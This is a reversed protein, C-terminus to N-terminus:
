SIVASLFSSIFCIKLLGYYNHNKEGLQKVNNRPIPSLRFVKLKTDKFQKSSTLDLMQTMFSNRFTDATVNNGQCRKSFHFTTVNDQWLVRKFLTIMLLNNVQLRYCVLLVCKCVCVFM